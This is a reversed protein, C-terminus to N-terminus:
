ERVQTLEVVQGNMRRSREAAFAIYHSECSASLMTMRRSVPHGAHLSELMELIMRTDGGGHGDLDKAMRKLDIVKEAKGFPQIRVVNEHMDAEISGHTGLVRLTRGGHATFATMMLQCCIGNEMEMNVIQHDVVDNDCAYVCRGYPGTKLAERISQPTPINVVTNNPWDTHGTLVGTTESTLYIKEADYPCNEKAACGEMCRAAAGAPANEPRFHRLGGFSSVRACRGGGCLWVLYDLDHCCKALLMFTSDAENRWHGRVFSHAQHWYGVNELAQILVVDGVDGAEIAAHITEFFPAYRLVHCVVVMRDAQKAAEQLAHLDELRTAIPKELLIHYGRALGALAYRVHSQDQTCIFLVDALKEEALLAEASEFCCAQTVGHREMCLKRRSEDPDAVAVIRMKEPVLDAVPAYADLGRNGLGCIAVRIPYDLM